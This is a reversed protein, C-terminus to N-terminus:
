QTAFPTYETGLENIRAERRNPRSSRGGLMMMVNDVYQRRATANAVPLPVGLAQAVEMLYEGSRKGATSRVDVPFVKEAATEAIRRAVQQTTELGDAERVIEAVRQKAGEPNRELLDLVESAESKRLVANRDQQAIEVSRYKQLAALKQSNFGAIYGLTEASGMEVGSGQSTEARGGNVWYAVGKKIAAPSLQKLAEGHDGHVLSKLGSLTSSVISGSPGFVSDGNFGDYSNFGLVNNVAWRSGLDIPVGANAAAGNAAGNLIVNALGGGEEEDDDLLEGLKAYIDGTLNEGTLKELIKLASGVFPLGLVGAAGVQIGFMSLAAKRAQARESSSLNLYDAGKWHQIYQAAQNLWGLTYSGLSYAAAGLVGTDGQLLPRNARGGAYTTANMYDVASEYWRDKPVGQEKAIRHGILLAVRKNFQETAVFGKMSLTAFRDIVSMAKEMPKFPKGGGAIRNLDISADANLDALETLSSVALVGDKNARTFLAREDPDEMRAIARHDDYLGAREGILRGTFTSVDKMAKATMTAARFLGVGRNVMEPIGSIFSQFGNMVMSSVNGGLMWTANFRSLVRTADSDPSMYNEVMRKFADVDHPFRKLEPNTLEYALRSRMTRNANIRSAINFFLKQTELMDMSGPIKRREANSLGKMGGPKTLDTAALMRAIDGSVNTNELLMARVDEEVDLENIQARRREEIAAVVDLADHSLTFADQKSTLQPEDFRVYGAARMERQWDSYEDLSSMADAYEKGKADYARAIYKGSRVLSMHGPRSAYFDNLQKAGQQTDMWMDMAKGYIADNGIRQRMVELQQTGLMRQAPDDSMANDMASTFKNVVDPMTAWRDPPLARGLYLMMLNRGTERQIEVTQKGVERHGMELASIVHGVIKKKEDSLARYADGLKRKKTGTPPWVPNITALEVPDFKTKESRQKWQMIESALANLAPDTEREMQKMMKYQPGRTYITGTDPNEGGVLPAMAANRFKAINPAHQFVSTAARNFVLLQKALGTLTRLTEKAMKGFIGSEEKTKGRMGAPLGPKAKKAGKYIGEDDFDSSYLAYLNETSMDAWKALTDMSVEAERVANVTVDFLEKVADVTEKFQPTVVGDRVFLASRLSSIVRNAYSTLKKVWGKAEPPSTLHWAEAEAKPMRGSAWLAASTAYLEQPTRAYAVDANTQFLDDWAKLHRYKEPLSDRWQLLFDYAKEPQDTLWQRYKQNAKIVEKPAYGDQVAADIVHGLEHAIITADSRVDSLTPRGSVPDTNFWFRRPNGGPLAALGGYGEGGDNILVGMGLKPIGFTDKVSVLFRGFIRQENESFGKMRLVEHITEDVTPLIKPEAVRESKSGSPSGKAGLLSFSDEGKPLPHLRATISSKPSGDPNRFVPSGVYGLEKLAKHSIQRIYEGTRDKKYLGVEQGDKNFLGSETLMYGKDILRQRVEPTLPFETELSQAKEHVGFDVVEGESGTLRKLESPLTRDYHLRMGSAQSPQTQKAIVRWPEKEVGSKVIEVSDFGRTEKLDAAKDKAQQETSYNQDITDHLGQDHGESMMATEADSLAVHTAGIEKAHKIAAKLALSNALEPNFLPHIKKAAEEAEGRTKYVTSDNGVRFTGDLQKKIWDYQVEVIHFVKKGDPLNEEYGRFFSVVNTDESGFHPGSYFENTPRYVGKGQPGQEVKGTPVRVLGEVYGPMASEAKPAIFTYRAEDDLYDPQDSELLNPDAAVRQDQLTNYEKILAQMQEARAPEMSWSANTAQFHPLRDVTGTDRDWFDRWEPIVTDLKHEIQVQRDIIKSEQEDNVPTIESAVKRLKKVEIVPGNEELGKMLRNVDVKANAFAEPVLMKYLEIEAKARAKWDEAKGSAFKKYLADTFVNEPLVGDPYIRPVFKGEIKTVGAEIQGKENYEFLRDIGFDLGPGAKPAARKVGYFLSGGESASAGGRGIDIEEEDRDAFFDAERKQRLAVLMDELQKQLVAPDAGGKLAAGLAEVREKTMGLEAANKSVFMRLSAKAVARAAKADPDESKTTVAKVTAEAEPRVAEVDRKAEETKREAEGKYKRKIGIPLGEAPANRGKNSYSKYEFPSDKPLTKNLALVADSAAAHSEFAYPENKGDVEWRNSETQKPLKARQATRALAARLSEPTNEKKGEAVQQRWNFWTNTIKVPDADSAFYKETENIQWQDEPTPNAKIRAYEEAKAMDTPRVPKVPEVAAKKAAEVTSNRVGVASQVIAESPSEGTAINVDVIDNRLEQETVISKGDIPDFGDPVSISADAESALSTEAVVEALQRESTVEDVNRQPVAAIAQKVATTWPNVTQTPRLHTATTWPNKKVDGVAKALPQAADSWLPTEDWSPTGLMSRRFLDIERIEALRANRKDKDSITLAQAEDRKREVDFLRMQAAKADVSSVDIPPTTDPADNVDAIVTPRKVHMPGMLQVADGLAYPIQGLVTGLAWDRLSHGEYPNLKGQAIAQTAYATAEMTATAGAQQALYGLTKDKAGELVTQAILRGTPNAGRTLEAITTTIPQVFPTKALARLGLEGGKAGIFPTASAVAAQGVSDTDEYVNAAAMGGAVGLRLAAPIQGGPILLSGYDIIGRPIERGIEEGYERNGGFADFVAGGFEAGFEPAGTAALAQDIWYSGKKVQEGLWSNDGASFNETGTIDNAFRSYERLSMPNDGTGRYSSYVDAFSLPQNPM